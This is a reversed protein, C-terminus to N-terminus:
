SKLLNECPIAKSRVISLHLGNTEKELEIFLQILLIPSPREVLRADIANAVITNVLVFLTNPRAALASLVKKSALKECKM